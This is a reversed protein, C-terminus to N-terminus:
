ATSRGAQFKMELRGSDEVSIVPGAKPPPINFDSLKFPTAAEGRCADPACMATVDWTLASTVGKVTAEGVLKFTLQGSAPPVGNLGRAERPVFEVNPFQSTDLVFRGKIFNDRTPRDSKLTRLDLILKSEPLISGKADLLISGSVARTTLLAENQGVNGALLERMRIDVESSDPTVTLKITAAGSPPATSVAVSPALSRTAAAVAGNPSASAAQSSAVSAPPESASAPASPVAAEPLGCSALALAPFLLLSRLLPSNFVM